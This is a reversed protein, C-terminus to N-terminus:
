VGRCAGLSYLALNEFKQTPFFKLSESRNRYRWCMMIKSTKSTDAGEYQGLIPFPAENQLLNKQRSRLRTEKYALRPSIVATAPVARLHSLAKARRANQQLIFQIIYPSFTFHLDDNALNPSKASATRCFHPPCPMLKVVAGCSM